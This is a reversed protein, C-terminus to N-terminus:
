NAYMRWTLRHTTGLAVQFFAGRHMRIFAGPHVWCHTIFLYAATIFTTFNCFLTSQYTTQLIPIMALPHWSCGMRTDM